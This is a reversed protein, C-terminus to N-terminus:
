RARTTRTPAGHRDATKTKGFAAQGRYAPNRLMAWVTSRDWVTEGKRTRVGHESLWRDRRDVRRRERLPRVGRPRGAGRARRDGVTSRTSGPDDRALPDAVDDAGLLGAQLDAEGEGQRELLFAQQVGDVLV